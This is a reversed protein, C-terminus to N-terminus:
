AVDEIIEVLEDVRYGEPREDDLDLTPTTM